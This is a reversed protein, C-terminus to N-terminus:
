LYNMDIAEKFINLGTPKCSNRFNMFHSETFGQNVKFEANLNM